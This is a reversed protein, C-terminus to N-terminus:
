MQIFLLLHSIPWLCMWLWCLTPIVWVALSNVFYLQRYLLISSYRFRGPFRCPSCISSGQLFCQISYALYLIVFATPNWRFSSDEFDQFWLHVSSQCPHSLLFIPITKLLMPTQNSLSRSLLHCHNNFFFTHIPHLSIAWCVLTCVSRASVRTWTGAGM